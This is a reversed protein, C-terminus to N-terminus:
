DDAPKVFSKVEKDIQECYNAITKAAGAAVLKDNASMQGTLDPPVITAQIAALKGELGGIKTQIEQPDMGSEKLSKECNETCKKLQGQIYKQVMSPEDGEPADKILKEIAAIHVAEEPTPLGLGTVDEGSVMTTQSSFQFLFATILVM